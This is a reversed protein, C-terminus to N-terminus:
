NSCGGRLACAFCLEVVLGCRLAVHKAQNAVFIVLVKAGQHVVQSLTVPLDQNQATFFAFGDKVIALCEPQVQAALCIAAFEFLLLTLDQFIIDLNDEKLTLHQLSCAPLLLIEICKLVYRITYSM